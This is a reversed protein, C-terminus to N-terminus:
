CKKETRHAKMLSIIQSVSLFYIQCTKEGKRSKTKTFTRINWRQCFFFLFEFLNRTKERSVCPIFRFNKLLISVCNTNARVIFNNIEFSEKAEREIEMSVFRLHLLFFGTQSTNRFSLRLLVVSLPPLTNSPHCPPLSLPLFLQRYTEGPIFRKPFILLTEWRAEGRWEENLKIIMMLIMAASIVKISTQSVINQPLYQRASPLFSELNIFKPHFITWTAEAFSFMTILKVDLQNLSSVLENFCDSLKWRSHM